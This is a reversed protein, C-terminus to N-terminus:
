AEASGALQLFSNSGLGLASGDRMHVLTSKFSGSAVRRAPGPLPLLQPGVYPAAGIAGLQGHRAWGWGAVEGAATVCGSHGYGGAFVGTIDTLNAPLEAPRPEPCSASPCPRGLQGLEAWGWTLVKGGVAAVGHDGGSSLFTLVFLFSSLLVACWAIDTAGHLAPLETWEPLERAAGLAGWASAGRGLVAGDARRMLAFGSGCCLQLPAESLAVRWEEFGACFAAPATGPLPRLPQGAERLLLEHMAGGTDRLLLDYTGAEIDAYPGVEVRQVGMGRVLVTGNACLGASFYGGAVVKVMAEGGWLATAGLTTEAILQREAEDEDFLGGGAALGALAVL